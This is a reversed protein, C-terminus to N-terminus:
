PWVAARDLLLDSFNRGRPPEIFTKRKSPDRELELEIWNTQIIMLRNSYADGHRSLEARINSHQQYSPFVTRRQRLWLRPQLRLGLWDWWKFLMPWRCEMPYAAPSQRPLGLKHKHMHATCFSSPGNVAWKTRTNQNEKSRNNNNNFSSLKERM